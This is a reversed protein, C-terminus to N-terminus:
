EELKKILVGVLLTDKFIVQVKHYNILPVEGRSKHSVLTRMFTRYDKPFLVMQENVKLNSIKTPISKSNTKRNREESVKGKDHEELVKVATKKKM